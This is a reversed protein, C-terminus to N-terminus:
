RVTYGRGQLCAAQANNFQQMMGAQYQQADQAQQAQQQKQKSIGRVAGFLLGVAAGTGAEGGIIGGAAAGIAAGGVMSRGMENGGQQQQPASPLGAAPDIGTQNRAWVYCEGEDQQQRQPSQGNAPYVILGAGAAAGSALLAVAAAMSKWESIMGSDKTRVDGARAETLCVGTRV